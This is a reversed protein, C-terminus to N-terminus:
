TSAGQSDMGSFGLGPNEFVNGIVEFRGNMGLHLGEKFWIAYGPAEASLLDRFFVVEGVGKVVQESWDSNDFTVIDGEYVARGTADELGIYQQIQDDPIDTPLHGFAGRLDFYSMKCIRHDWARFNLRSTMFSLSVMNYGGNEVTLSMGRGGLFVEFNELITLSVLIGGKVNDAITDQLSSSEPLFRFVLTM